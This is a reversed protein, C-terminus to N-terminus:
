IAGMDRYRSAAVRGAGLEYKNPRSFICKRWRSAWPNKQSNQVGSHANIITEMSHVVEVGSCSTQAQAVNSIAFLAILSFLRTIHKIM